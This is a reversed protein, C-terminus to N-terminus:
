GATGGTASTMRRPSAWQGPNAGPRVPGSCWGCGGARGWLRSCLEPQRIWQSPFGSTCGRPWGGFVRLLAM